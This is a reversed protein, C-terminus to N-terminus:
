GNIVREMKRLQLTVQKLEENVEREKDLWHIMSKAYGRTVELPENRAKRAQMQVLRQNAIYSNKAQKLEIVRERLREVKIM